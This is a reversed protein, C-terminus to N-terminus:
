YRAFIFYKWEGMLFVRVKWLTTSKIVRSDGAARAYGTGSGGIGMRGPGKPKAYGGPMDPDGYTPPLDGGGGGNRLSGGDDSHESYDARAYSALAVSTTVGLCLVLIFAWWRNLDFRRM